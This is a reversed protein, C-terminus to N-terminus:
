KYKSVFIFKKKVNLVNSHNIKMIIEASVNEIVVLNIMLSLM